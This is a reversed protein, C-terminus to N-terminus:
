FYSYQESTAKIYSEILKASELIDDLYVLVDRKKKM